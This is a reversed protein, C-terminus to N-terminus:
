VVEAALEAPPETSTAVPPVLPRWAAVDFRSHPSSAKNAALEEYAQRGQPYLEQATIPGTERYILIEDLQGQPASVVQPLTSHAMQVLERAQDTPPTVLLCFSGQRSSLNRVIQPRADRYAERLQQVVAQSSSQLLQEAADGPPILGELERDATDDILNLVDQFAPGEGRCIDAYSTQVKGLSRALDHDLMRLFDDPLQDLMAIVREELTKHGELILRRGLSAVEQQRLQKKTDIVIQQLAQEGPELRSLCGTITEKMRQFISLCRAAMDERLVWGPYEILDQTILTLNKQRGMASFSREEQSSMQTITREARVMEQRVHEHSAQLESTHLSVWDLLMRGLCLCAGLRYGPRDLYQNLLSPLQTCIDQALLEGDEAIAALITSPTGDAASGFATEVKLLIDRAMVELPPRAAAGKRLPAVWEEILSLPERGIAIAAVHEFRELVATPSIIRERLFAEGDDKVENIVEETPHIWRAILRQVLSRKGYYTLLQASSQLTAIGQGRWPNPDDANVVQRSAHRLTGLPSTTDRLLWYAARRLAEPAENPVARGGKWFFAEDFPAHASHCLDTKTYDARFFREETYHHVELLSAYANAKHVDADQEDPLFFLGTINSQSWGLEVLINRVLYALDSLAGSVAGGLGAVLYVAPTLDQRVPLGTKKSAELIGKSQLMAQCERTLRERLTKFNGVFALRGLCRLNRTSAQPGIQDLHESGIWEEVNKLGQETWLYGGPTALRCALTQDKTLGGPKGTVHRALTQADTDVALLRINPLQSVGGLREHYQQHLQHLAAIGQGGLGVILTPTLVGKSDVSKHYALSHLNLFASDPHQEDKEAAFYSRIVATPAPTVTVDELPQVVKGPPVPAKAVPPPESVVIPEPAFKAAPVLTGASEVVSASLATVLEHCNPFRKEPDTDLARALIARENESVLGLGAPQRGRFWELVSGATFPPQGTTAEIYVAALAYQDSRPLLQGEVMEPACGALDALSWPRQRLRDARVLGWDLLKLHRHFVGINGLKLAGHVLAHKEHLYDLVDAAEELLRLVASRLLGQGGETRKAALQTEVTEETWDSLLLLDSGVIECRDWHMLFPHRSATLKHLHPFDVADFIVKLARETSNPAQVQWTESGWSRGVRRLCRYGPLPEGDPHLALTM